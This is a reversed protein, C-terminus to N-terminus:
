TKKVFFPTFVSNIDPPDTIKVKTHKKGLHRKAIILICDNLFTQFDVETELIEKFFVDLAVNPEAEGLTNLIASGSLLSSMFYLCNGQEPTLFLEFIEEEPTNDIEKKIIKSEYHSAFKNRVTYVLTRRNKFYKELRAFSEKATPNLCKEYDTAIKTDVFKKEVISWGERLKGALMTLLFFSLSNQAKQEADTPMVKHTFLILKHLMNIDNLFSGIQVFFIREGEPIADLKAKSIEIKTLEM